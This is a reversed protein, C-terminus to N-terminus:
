LYRASGMGILAIITLIFSLNAHTAVKSARERLVALGEAAIPQNGDPVYQVLAAGLASTARGTIAGGHIIALLGALAGIGLVVNGTTTFHSAANGVLYLLIGALVTLGSAAPFVKAYSTKTLLTKLFRLGSEGARGVAPGIYLAMVGGLGIWAVSAVIHILRLLVLVIDM